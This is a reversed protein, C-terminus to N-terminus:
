PLGIVKLYEELTITIRELSNNIEDLRIDTDLHLKELLAQHTEVANAHERYKINKIDNTTMIHKEM